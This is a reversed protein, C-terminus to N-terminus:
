PRKRVLERRRKFAKVLAGSYREMYRDEIYRYREPHKAFSEMPYPRYHHLMGEAPPMMHEAAGAVLKYPFHLDIAIAKDAQYMSKCRIKAPPTVEDTTWFSSQTILYPDEKSTNRRFYSHQFLYVGIDPRGIRQMLKPWTNVSRPVLIEDLDTITVYRHRHGMRYICDNLAGRQCHVNSQLHGPFPWRVVNVIDNKDTTYSRLTRDTEPAVSYNYITIESAGLLKHVEFMEIIMEWDGWRNYLASICLAHTDTKQVPKRNLVMLENGPQALCRVPSISVASPVADIGRPLKCIIFHSSWAEHFLTSPYIVNYIAPGVVVSYDRDDYWLQCYLDGITNYAAQWGSAIIRIAPGDAEPRREYYASFVIVKREEVTQWTQPEREFFPKELGRCVRANPNAAEIRRIEGIQSVVELLQRSKSVAPCSDRRTAYGCLPLLLFVISCVFTARLRGRDRARQSTM